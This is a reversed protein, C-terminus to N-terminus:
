PLWGFLKSNNKGQQQQQNHSRPHPQQQEETEGTEEETQGSLPLTDRVAEKINGSFSFSPFTAAPADIPAGTKPNRATRPGRRRLHFTGLRSIYVKKGKTLEDKIKDIFLSLITDVQSRPLSM